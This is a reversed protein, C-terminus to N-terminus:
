APAATKWAVTPPLSAGVRSDAAHLARLYVNHKAM